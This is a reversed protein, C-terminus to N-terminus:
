AVVPEPSQSGAIRVYWVGLVASMVSGTVSLAVVAALPGGAVIGVGIAALRLALDVIALRFATKMRGTVAPVHAFPAIVFSALLSPALVATYIGATRWQVGFLLSFAAPSALAVLLAPGAGVLLLFRMARRLREALADGARHLDSVRRYAIQAISQGLFAAPTRAARSSLSFHGAAGVGFVAAFLAATGAERVGDLLAHPANTLPFSRHSSAIAKLQAWTTGRLARAITPGFRGFAITAAIVQGLTWGVALGGANPVLQGAVVSCAAVISAQAVRLVGLARFASARTYWYTASQTVGMALISVPALALLVIGGPVDAVWPMLVGTAAAGSVVVVTGGLVLLSLLLVGAAEADSDPLVVALEYRGSGVTSVAMVVAFWVAYTGFAAPGYIRTLWPTVAFAVAQSVLTAVSMAAASRFLGDSSPGRTRDLLREV